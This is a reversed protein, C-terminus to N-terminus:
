FQKSLKSNMEKYKAIEQHNFQYEEIKPMVESKNAFYGGLSKKSKQSQKGSLISITSSKKNAQDSNTNVNESLISCSDESLM